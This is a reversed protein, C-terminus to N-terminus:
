LSFRDKFGNHILHLVLVPMHHDVPSLDVLKLLQPMPFPAPGPPKFAAGYPLDTLRRKHGAPM